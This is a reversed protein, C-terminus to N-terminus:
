SRDKKDFCKMFEELVDPMRRSKAENLMKLDHAKLATEVMIKFDPKADFAACLSSMIDIGRGFIGVIHEEDTPFAGIMLVSEEKTFDMSKQIDEAYSSFKKYANM